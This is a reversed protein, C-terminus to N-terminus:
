GNPYYDYNQVLLSLQKDPVEVDVYQPYTLGNPLTAFTATVTVADGQYTTSVQIRRTQFTTPNVALFFTDGPNVVNGGSLQMIPSGDPAHGGQINAQSIFNIVAGASPLTYQDVLARLGSMYQETQQRQNEAIARRLFGMPLQASQDNLLTQQLNGDPGYSVQDIRTDQVTGNQTLEIRSTWSYQKLQASNKQRAQIIMNAIGENPVQARIPLPCVLIILGIILIISCITRKM